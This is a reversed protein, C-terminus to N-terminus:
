LRWLSSTYTMGGGIALFLVLDGEKLRDAEVLEALCIPVSAASTNGFRDINIYMKEAPLGLKERASELIRKNSQHPIVMALDDPAVGTADLAEHILNMTTQVAFKYVERGNMQLTNFKGTFGNRDTPLHAEESPLYLERWLSGESRMAQYLCGRETNDVASLVAAGAGDGFLVCTRRDEWDTVKSLTESGVVAINRYQGSEILSNAINLAYVFGSCAASLDMAGAPAAGLDDVLRAATSPCAMEPTLTALLVMDLDGPGIGARNLADATAQHALDRVTTGAEIIRRTKIGTRKSIWDDSTDVIRALDENTMTRAPVAM